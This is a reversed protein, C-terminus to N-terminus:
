SGVLVMCQSVDLNCLLCLCVLLLLFCVFCSLSGFVCVSLFLWLRCLILSVGFLLILSGAFYLPSGSGCLIILVCLCLVLQPLWVVRSSDLCWCLSLSHASSTFLVCLSSVTSFVIDSGSCNLWLWLCCVLLSFVFLLPVFWCIPLSFCLGDCFCVM